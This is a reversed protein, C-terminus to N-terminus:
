DTFFLTHYAVWRFTGHAIKGEWHQPSCQEVCQQLMALAAQFQSEIIRNLYNSM